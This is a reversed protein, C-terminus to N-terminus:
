RGEDLRSINSITLTDTTVGAILSGTGTAGSSLPLSKKRWIDLSHPSRHPLCLRSTPPAIAKNPRKSACLGFVARTM